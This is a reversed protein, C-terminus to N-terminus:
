LRQLVGRGVSEVAQDIAFNGADGHRYPVPASVVLKDHSAQQMAGPILGTVGALNAGDIVPVAHARANDINAVSRAQGILCTLENLQEAIADDLTGDIWKAAFEM